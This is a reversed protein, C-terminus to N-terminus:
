SPWRVGQAVPAPAPLRIDMGERRCRRDVYVVVRTASEVIEGFAVILLVASTTLVIVAWRHTGSFDSLFWPIGLLPLATLLLLARLCLWLWVTPWQAGAILLKSRAVATRHNAGEAFIVPVAVFRNARLWGLWLLAFPLGIILVTGLGLVAVGVLTFLSGFVLQPGLRAGSRRLATRWDIPAGVIVGTGIATTLGRLAIRVLWLCVLTSVVVAWAVAADDDDSLRAVGATVGAIVLEAAILLTAGFGALPRIASQILAFPTDLLERFTMPRIPVTTGLTGPVPDNGAGVAGATEAPPM